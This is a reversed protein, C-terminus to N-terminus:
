LIVQDVVLIKDLIDAVRSSIQLRTKGCAWTKLSIRIRSPFAFTKADEESGTHWNLNDMIVNNVMSLLWNTTRLGMWRWHQKLSCYIWMRSEWTSCNPLFVPSLVIFGNHHCELFHYLIVRKYDPHDLTYNTKISRDMKWFTKPVIDM